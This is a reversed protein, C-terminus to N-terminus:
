TTTEGTNTTQNKNMVYESCKRDWYKLVTDSFTKEKEDGYSWIM